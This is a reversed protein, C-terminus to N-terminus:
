TTAFQLLWPDLRRITDLSSDFIRITTDICLFGPHGMIAISVSQQSYMDFPPDQDYLRDKCLTMIATKAKSESDHLNVFDFYAQRGNCTLSHNHVCSTSLDRKFVELM